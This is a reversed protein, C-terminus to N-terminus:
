DVVLASDTVSGNVKTQWLLKGDRSVAYFNGLDDGAYVSDGVVAPTGAVRGATPFSWLTHLGSVNGPSLTTEATNDRTGAADFNYMSWDGSSPVVRDELLELHPQARRAAAGGRRRGLREGRKFPRAILRTVLGYMPVGKDSRVSLPRPG